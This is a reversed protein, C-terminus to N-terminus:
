KNLDILDSNIRNIDEVLKVAGDNYEQSLPRDKVLKLSVFEVGFVDVRVEMELVYFFTNLNIGLDSDTYQIRIQDGVTYQGTFPDNPGFDIDYVNIKDIAKQLFEQGLEGLTGSTTVNYAKQYSQRLKYRNLEPTNTTTTTVNISQGQYVVSNSYHQLDFSREQIKTIVPQKYEFGTIQQGIEPEYYLVRYDNHTMDPSVRFGRFRQPNGSTDQVAVLQQFIKLLQDDVYSRNRLNNSALSSGFTIGTNVQTTLTTDTNTIDLVDEFIDREDKNSYTKTIFRKKLFVEGWHRVVVKATKLEEFGALTGTKTIKQIEGAYVLKGDRIVRVENGLILGNKINANINNLNYTFTLPMFDNVKFGYRIDEALTLTGIESQQSNYLKLITAM